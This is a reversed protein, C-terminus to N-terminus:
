ICYLCSPYNRCYRTRYKGETGSFDMMCAKFHNFAHQQM